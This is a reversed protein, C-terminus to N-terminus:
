TRSRDVFTYSAEQVSTLPKGYLAQRDIMKGADWLGLLEDISFTEISHNTWESQVLNAHVCVCVAQETCLGYRGSFFPVFFQMSSELSNPAKFAISKLMASTENRGFMFGSVGLPFTWDSVESSYDWRFCEFGHVREYFEPISVQKQLVVSHTLDKGRTLALIYRSTDIKRVADYDVKHTFLMDDVYFIIKDALSQECLDILQTRFDSEEHLVIDEDSFIHKLEEYSRAHREDTVKYLVDLKGRNSVNDLYSGLFAHLQMARDKSFIISGVDSGSTVNNELLLTTFKVMTDYHEKSCVVKGRMEFYKKLLNPSNIRM